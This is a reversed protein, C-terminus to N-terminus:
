VKRVIGKTADVEVMDGDQLLEDVGKVGVVCPKQLERSVIAAHCTLGGAETIIAAAKKMAPVLNPNTNHAILINGEEMKGMEKPINIVKVLGRVVGPYACSGFLENVDQKKTKEFMTKQLIEKAKNGTYMTYNEKDVWAVCFRLRANLEDVNYEQELLAPGIEWYNFARVQDLSLHLRKGVERFFPEYSYNGHYLADKRYNKIFVLDQSIQILKLQKEDFDLQQLLLNRKKQMEKEREEFENQINSLDDQNELLADFRDEFYKFDHAPGKYQYNLWEYKKAHKKLANEDGRSAITLLEREEQKVFSEETPTSLISFVEALNEKVGCREIQKEIMRRISKSVREEDQDALWTISSGFGHSLIHYKLPKEFAKVMKSGSMDQFNLQKFLKAEQFFSDSWSRIKEMGELAWDLDEIMKNSLFEAQAQFEKKVYCQRSFDGEFLTFYKKLKNGLGYRPWEQFIFKFVVSMMFPTNQPIDEAVFWKEKDVPM